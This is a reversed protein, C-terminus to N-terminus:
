TTPALNTPTSAMIFLVNRHEAAAATNKTPRTPDVLFGDTANYYNAANDLINSTYPYAYGALKSAVVLELQADLSLQQWSDGITQDVYALLSQYYPLHAVPISRDYFLTEALVCHTVFYTLLIMDEPNTQVYPLAQITALAFPLDDEGLLLRKALYLTNVAYTSLNALANEDKALTATLEQATESGILELLVEPVTIGYYKEWNLLQFLALELGYVDPYTDFYLKRRDWFGMNNNANPRIQLLSRLEDKPHEPRTEAVLQAVRKTAEGDQAWSQLRSAFHFQAEFPLESFHGLYYSYITNSLDSM